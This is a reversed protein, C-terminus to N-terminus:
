YQKMWYEVSDIVFKGLITVFGILAPNNKFFALGLLLPAGVKCFEKITSWNGKLWELFRYGEFSYKPSDMMM